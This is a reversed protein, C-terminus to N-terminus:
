CGDTGVSTLIALGLARLSHESLAISVRDQGHTFSVVPEGADDRTIAPEALSHRFDCDIRLAM